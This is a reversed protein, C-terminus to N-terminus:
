KNRFIIFQQQLSPRKNSSISLECLSSHVNKMISFLYLSFAIHLAPSNIFKKLAEKYLKKAFHNLFIQDQHLPLSRDSFQHTRADFLQADNQCPCTNDECTQTHQNVIGILTVEDSFNTNGGKLLNEITNM